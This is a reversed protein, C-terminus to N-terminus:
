VYFLESRKAACDGDEDAHYHENDLELFRHLQPDIFGGCFDCFLKKLEKHFM